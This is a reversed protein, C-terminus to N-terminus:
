AWRKGAKMMSFYLTLGTLWGGLVDIAYHAYIYVTSLCLLVYFPVLCIFLRRNRSHWALLMVITSVGVHSSPFAATPREGAEHASEVMQYFFGDTYGPSVMRYSHNYFYDHLNPFIGRAIENFGAAPYYYQPGTVPILVYLSYYIFFSGILVFSARRFDDYRFLFYFLVVLVMMPFYSAYGMDMLESVVPHSFTSHFLLAPQCGFLSQEWTAFLHDLNPLLRNIEYTDPYWWALLAMQGAVRALLTMRCPYMRYVAWLGATMAAIRVRGWIMSEPNQLKTYAFLIILLTFVWYGAMLWELGLLGKRPKAEPKFYQWLKNM